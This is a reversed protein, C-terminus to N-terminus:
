GAERSVAPQAWPSLTEHYRRMSEHLLSARDRRSPRLRPLDNAPRNLAGPATSNVTATGTSVTAPGAAPEWRTSVMQWESMGEHWFHDTPRVSGAHMLKAISPAPFPPVLVVGDRLIHVLIMATPHFLPRM